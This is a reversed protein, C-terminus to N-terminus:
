PTPPRTYPNPPENFSNPPQGFPPPHHSYLNPPQNFSNQPHGFPTHPQSYPNPVQSFNPPPQCYPNRVNPPQPVQVFTELFARRSSDDLDQWIPRWAADKAIKDYALVRTRPDIGMEVLSELIMNAESRGNVTNNSPLSQSSTAVNTANERRQREARRGFDVRADNDESNQYPSNQENQPEKNGGGVENPPVIDVHAQEMTPNYSRAGTAVVRSPFIAALHMDNLKWGNSFITNVERNRNKDKHIKSSQGNSDHHDQHPQDIPAMNLPTSRIAGGRTVWQVPCARFREWILQPAVRGM